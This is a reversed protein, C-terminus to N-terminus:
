QSKDQLAHDARLLTISFNHSLTVVEEGLALACKGIHAKLKVGPERM